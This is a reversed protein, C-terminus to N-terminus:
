TGAHVQQSAWMRWPGILAVADEPFPWQGSTVGLLSPILACLFLLSYILVVSYERRFFRSSLEALGKMM